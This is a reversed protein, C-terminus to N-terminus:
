PLLTHQTPSTVGNHLLRPNTPRIQKGDFMEALIIEQISLKTAALRPTIAAQQINQQGWTSKM